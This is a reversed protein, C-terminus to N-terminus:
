KQAKWAAPDAPAKVVIAREIVQPTQPRDQQGRPTKVIRDVVDLGTVLQGFGSYQGDLHPAKAHMVFFQCSASDPDNTRAASLVGPVHKRQNFEAKLKRPGNGTGSGDPDGGQIMFGPIVRHFTTGDYFGALSLDLFNRVHNPAVDPWFEALLDGRNTAILVWFKTLEAAPLAAEDMFKVDKAVAELVRVKKAPLAGWTLEFDAEARLSAALDVELTKKSGPALELASQAGKEALPRGGVSFGAATVQWGELTAGDAPAELNLRVRFPSGAVFYSPAEVTVKAEGPFALLLAALIM